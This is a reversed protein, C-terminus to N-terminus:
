KTESERIAALIRVGAKTPLNAAVSEICSRHVRVTLFEDPAVVERLGCVVCRQKNNM